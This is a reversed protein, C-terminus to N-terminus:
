HCKKIHVFKLLKHTLTLLKPLLHCLLRSLRLQKINSVKVPLYPCGYLHLWLHSHYYGYGFSSTSFRKSPGSRNPLCAPEPIQQHHIYLYLNQVDGIESSSPAPESLRYKNYGQLPDTENQFFNDPLQLSDPANTGM